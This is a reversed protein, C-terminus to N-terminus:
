RNKDAKLESKEFCVEYLANIYAPLLYPRDVHFCLMDDSTARKKGSAYDQDFWWHSMPADFPLVPDWKVDTKSVHWHRHVQAGLGELDHRVDPFLPEVRTNIGFRSSVGVLADLKALITANQYNELYIERCYRKLFPLKKSLGYMILKFGRRFAWRGSPYADDFDHIIKLTERQVLYLV